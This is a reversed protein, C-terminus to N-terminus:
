NKARINSITEQEIVDENVEDSEDQNYIYADYSLEYFKKDGFYGRIERLCKEYEKWTTAKRDTPFYINHEELFPITVSDIPFYKDPFFM